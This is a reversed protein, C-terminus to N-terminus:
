LADAWEPGGPAAGADAAAPRLRAAPRGRGGQRDAAEDLSVTRSVISLRERQNDGILLWGFDDGAELVWFDSWTAALWAFVAPTFSISLRGDGGRAARLRGRQEAVGRAATCISSARLGRPDPRDFRYRTDSVCRRHWWTGTTAIEYWVGALRTVDLRPVVEPPQAAAGQVSLTAALFVVARGCAVIGRASAGPAKRM